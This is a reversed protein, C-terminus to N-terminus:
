SSRRGYAVARAIDSAVQARSARFSEADRAYINVTTGAGGEWARTEARNLVREGRLLVAADEDSGLGMGGGNHFRPAAALAAAPIMMSTPGPVRGGSNYVGASIAGGGIGGLVGGLASALPGFVFRRFAIKALDAIISTALSSFDLKGTRVFEAVAEEGARFASTIAEGVSGGWNAAEAAYTSLAESVAAWGTAAVDAAAAVEEATQLPGGGGGAGGEAPDDPTISIQLARDRVDNFYESLPSGSVIGRIQAALAARREADRAAYPNAVSDIRFTAPDLTSLAPDLGVAELAANAAEALANIGALAKEIMWNVADIVANAAGVVLAGVADPVGQFAYTAGAAAVKFANIVLDGM